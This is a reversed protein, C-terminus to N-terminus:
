PMTAIVNEGFIQNPFFKERTEIDIVWKVFCRHATSNFHEDCIGFVKNDEYVFLYTPQEGCCVYMEPQM